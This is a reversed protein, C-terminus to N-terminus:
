HKGCNEGPVSFKIVQLTRCYESFKVYLPSPLPRNLTFNLKLLNGESRCEDFTVLKPDEVICAMKRISLDTQGKIAHVLSVLVIALVKLFKLM